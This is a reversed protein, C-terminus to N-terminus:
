VIKKRDICFRHKGPNISVSYVEWQREKKSFVEKRRPGGQKEYINFLLLYKIIGETRGHVHPTLRSICKILGGKNIM